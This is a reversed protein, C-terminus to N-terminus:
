HTGGNQAVGAPQGDEEDAQFLDGNASMAERMAPVRELGFACYLQQASKEGFTLRVETVQRLKLGKPDEAAFPETPAGAMSYGGTRRIAPLVEGTVWRRFRHPVTGPKTADRSRLILTYLGGESVVLVEQSGGLTYTSCIGREDEDLASVAQAVNKIGLIRCPDAAVFWPATDRMVVRFMADGEFLFPTMQQAM